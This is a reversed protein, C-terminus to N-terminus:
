LQVQPQMQCKYADVTETHVNTKRRSHVQILFLVLYASARAQVATDAAARDILFIYVGLRKPPSTPRQPTLGPSGAPPASNVAYKTKTCRKGSTSIQVHRTATLFRMNTKFAVQWDFRMMRGLLSSGRCAPSSIPRIVM